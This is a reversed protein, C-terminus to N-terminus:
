YLWIYVRSIKWQRRKISFVVSWFSTRRGGEPMLHCLWYVPWLHIYFTFRSVRGSFFVIIERCIMWWCQYVQWMPKGTYRFGSCLLWKVTTEAM